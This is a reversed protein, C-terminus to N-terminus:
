SLLLGWDVKWLMADKGQYTWIRFYAQKHAQYIIIFAQNHSM